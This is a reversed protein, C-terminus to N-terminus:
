RGLKSLLPQAKAIGALAQSLFLAGPLSTLLFLLRVMVAFILSHPESIGGLRSFAYTITVEQLGIANITFPMLTIVYVLGWLGAITWFPLPDHLDQLVIQMTLFLCLMHLFTFLLSTFLAAPRNLWLRVAALMRSSVSYLWRKAREWLGQGAALPVLPLPYWGLMGSDALRQLGVPVVLAMGALGVLRDMLLSAASVAADFGLQLAGGLRALDGGVTTPLFNGAFLGVFTLQTSQKWTAPAGASRLLVHWRASIALRSGLMLGLALAFRAPRIRGVADTIEGWHQRLLYVVLALALLTALTRPWKLHAPASSEQEVM